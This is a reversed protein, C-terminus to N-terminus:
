AYRRGKGVDFVLDELNYIKWDRKNKLARRIEEYYHVATVIVADAEPLFDESDYVPMDLCIEEKRRDIIYRVDLGAKKLESLLLEGLEKMGYIAVTNIGEEKLIDAICHGNIENEVWQLLIEYFVTLKAAGNKKNRQAINEEQSVDECMASLLMQRFPEDLYGSSLVTKRFKQLESRLWEYTDLFRQSDASNQIQAMLAYLFKVNLLIAEEEFQPYISLVDALIQRTFEYSDLRNLSFDASTISGKRHFYHYDAYGNNVVLESSLVIEWIVPVDESSKGEPFMVREFLDRRFLKNCVSLDINRLLMLEKVAEERDMRVATGNAKCYESKRIYRNAFEQRVNCTVFDVGDVMQSELHEYMKPEIYDDGDVFGIYTGSAYQIGHNRASSLGGNETHLVHIRNDKQMYEDCILGSGDESGDDVLIIELNQYTQAQISGICRKMYPRVNYIPVIISIKPATMKM